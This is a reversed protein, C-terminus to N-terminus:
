PEHQCAPGDGKLFRFEDYINIDDKVTISNSLDTIDEMRTNSHMLQSDDAPCRHLLYMVPKEAERQIDVKKRFTNDAYFIAPDYIVNVM